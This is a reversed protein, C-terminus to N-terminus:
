QKGAAQAPMPEPVSFRYGEGRVTQIYQPGLKQRLWAVHVDVTRSSVNAEYGWVERLLYDRSLIRNRQGAFHKLLQFERPSLSLLKGMKWARSSNPELELDGVRIRAAAELQRLLAEVRSLLSILESVRGNPATLAGSQDLEHRLVSTLRSLESLPREERTWGQQWAPEGAEPSRHALCEHRLVFQDRM